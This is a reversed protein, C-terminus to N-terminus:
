QSRPNFKRAFTGKFFGIANCHVERFKRWDHHAASIVTGLGFFKKLALDQMLLQCVLSSLKQAM